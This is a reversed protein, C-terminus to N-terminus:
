LGAYNEVRGEGDDTGDAFLYEDGWIVKCWFFEVFDIGGDM